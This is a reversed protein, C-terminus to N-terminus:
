RELNPNLGSLLNYLDSQAKQEARAQPTSQSTGNPNARGFNNVAQGWVSNTLDAANPATIANPNKFTAAQGATSQDLPSNFGEGLLQQLASAQAYQDATATNAATAVNNNPNMSLYQQIPNDLGLGTPKFLENWENIAPSVAGFQSQVQQLQNNYAQRQAEANQANTNVSNTFSDVTPQFTSRAYNQSDQAAKQAASVGKDAATTANNFADTLGGFQGAAQQIQQQAGPNGRLLLADLTSSAQTPNKAGSAFYQQLGAQSNLLGANQVAQNVEGQINGYANTGEFNQPGNYQNNYQAQFAKVNNPDAAFQTPNSSAQNVINQDPAAYGGQVSQNFQNAANTIDTNTQQFQNNLNQTVSNAQNQIQPANASLYDGLKSASSGFQTPTGQSAGKPGGTAAGASGGSVPPAQAPNNTTQGQPANQNQENQPLFAM